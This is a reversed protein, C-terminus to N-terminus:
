ESLVSWGCMVCRQGYYSGRNRHGYACEWYDDIRTLYYYGSIDSRLTTIGCRVMSPSNLFWITGNEFVLSELDVPIKQGIQKSAPDSAYGFISLMIFFLPALQTIKFM